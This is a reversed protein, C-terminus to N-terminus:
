DWDENPYEMRGQRVGDIPFCHGEDDCAYLCYGIHKALMTLGRYNTSREMERLMNQEVGDRTKAKFQQGCISIVWHTIVPPEKLEIHTENCTKLDVVVYRRQQAKILEAEVWVIFAKMREANALSAERMHQYFDAPVIGECMELTMPLDKIWKKYKDLRIELDAETCKVRGEQIADLEYMLMTSNANENM